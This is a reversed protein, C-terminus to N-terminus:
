SSPPVRYTFGVPTLEGDSIKWPEYVTLLGGTAETEEENVVIRSVVALAVGPYRNEAHAVEKPTLLVRWGESTTGKVEVRLEKGDRTCHLDYSQTASVDEVDWTQGYHESVVAM